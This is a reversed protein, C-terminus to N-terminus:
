WGHERSQQGEAGGREPQGQGDGGQEAGECEAPLLTRHLENRPVGLPHSVGRPSPGWPIPDLRLDGANDRLAADVPVPSVHHTVRGPVRQLAPADRLRAEHARLDGTPLWGDVM